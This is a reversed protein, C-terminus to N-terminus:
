AARRDLLRGLTEVPRLPYTLLSRLLTMPSEDRWESDGNLWELGNFPADWDLWRLDPKPSGPHAVISMGGLRAIAVLAELEDITV